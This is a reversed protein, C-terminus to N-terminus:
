QIWVKPEVSMGPRLRDMEQQNPRFRIRVPMRQVVKVFNGTANEPPLLSFIAGTGGPLNVVWGKFDRDLADVHITVSQGAHMNTTQTEKFNATVWFDDLPTIALLEQGPAVQQGVEVTKDGVVGSVPATIKCYSLNLKAQEVQAKAATVDAQRSAVTARQSAVQRPQNAATERARVRAQDLVAQRQAVVKQAADATAKRAAVVAEQAQAATVRQDYVERSVEQKDALRRYRAEETAANQANAEAQRLEAQASAYNQRAADVAAAANAVDLNATAVNTAQTTQTIPVNPSQAQLASEAQALKAEAQALATKYDSPDLDVLVDGQKVNRSNETYVGTVMGTIRSGIANLHGEVEADDTSVYSSLYNWLLVAAVILVLTGVILLVFGAPHERVWTGARQRLPPKHEEQKQEGGEKEERDDTTQESSGASQNADGRKSSGKERNRKRDNGSGNDHGNGHGNGGEDGQPNKEMWDHQERTLRQVERRLRQQERLMNHLEDSVSPRRDRKPM